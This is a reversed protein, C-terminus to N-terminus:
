NKYTYMINKIILFQCDIYNIQEYCNKTFKIAANFKIKSM